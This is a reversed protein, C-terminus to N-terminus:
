LENCLHAYLEKLYELNKIQYKRIKSVAYWSVALGILFGVILGPISEKDKLVEIFPKYEYYVHISLNIMVLIIPLLVIYLKSSNGFLWKTLLRIRQEVWEKLPLNFRNNQLKIWAFVSVTLSTLTILCLTSNNVMYIIDSRRNLSTVILFVIVGVCVVIDITLIFLFKNITQKTRATLLQDLEDISKLKIESGINNWINHLNSTEM